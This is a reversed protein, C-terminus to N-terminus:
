PRQPLTGTRLVDEAVDRLKRNLHQSTARLLTFAEEETIKHANMLIGLAIGIHRSTMLAQKLNVADDAQDAHMMLVRAHAAFLAAANLAEHDFAGGVGSYLNLASREPADALHFSMVGRVPTQAMTADAFTPWRDTTTLDPMRIPALECAAVLCPGEGLAYQLHDVDLAIQHSTALSRPARGPPWATVAAWDCGPVTAVALKVLRELASTRDDGDSLLENLAVFDSALDTSLETDKM